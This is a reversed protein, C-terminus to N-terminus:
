LLVEIFVDYISRYKSYVLVLVHKFQYIIIISYVLTFCYKKVFFVKKILVDKVLVDVHGKLFM